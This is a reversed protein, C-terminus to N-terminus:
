FCYFNYSVFWNLDILMKDVLCDLSDHIIIIRNFLTYQPHHVLCDIMLDHIIFNGCSFQIVIIRLAIFFINNGIMQQNNKNIVSCYYYGLLWIHIHNPSNKKWQQTRIELKGTSMAYLVGADSYPNHIHVVTEIRCDIRCEFYEYMQMVGRNYDDWESTINLQHYGQSPRNNVNEAMTSEIAAAAFLRVAARGFEVKGRRRNSECKVCISKQEEISNRSTTWKNHNNM